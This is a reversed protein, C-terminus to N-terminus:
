LESISGGPNKREGQSQLATDKRFLLLFQRGRNFKWALWVPTPTLICRKLLDCHRLLARCFLVWFVSSSRKGTISYGSMHPYVMTPHGLFVGVHLNHANQLLENTAKVDRQEENQLGELLQFLARHLQCHEWDAVPFHFLLFSVRPLFM